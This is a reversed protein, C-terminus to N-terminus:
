GYPSDSLTQVVLLAYKINKKPVPKFCFYVAKGEVEYLCSSAYDWRREFNFVFMHILVNVYLCSQMYMSM